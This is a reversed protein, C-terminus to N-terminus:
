KKESAAQEEAKQAKVKVRKMKEEAEAKKVAEPSFAEPPVFHRPVSKNKLEDETPFYKDGVMYFHKNHFCKRIALYM